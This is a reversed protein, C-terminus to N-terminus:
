IKMIEGEPDLPDDTNVSNMIKGQDNLDQLLIVFLIHTYTPTVVQGQRTAPGGCWRVQLVSEIEQATMGAAATLREIVLDVPLSATQSDDYLGDLLELCQQRREDTLEVRPLRERPAQSLM